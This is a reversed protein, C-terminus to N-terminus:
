RDEYLEERRLNGMIKGLFFSGFIKKSAPEPKKLMFTGFPFTFDVINEPTLLDTLLFEKTAKGKETVDHTLITYKIEFM